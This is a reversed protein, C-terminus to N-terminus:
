ETREDNPNRWMMMGFQGVGEEVWLRVDLESSSMGDIRCDVGKSDSRKEGVAAM